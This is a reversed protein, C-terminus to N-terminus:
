ICSPLRVQESPGTQRFSIKCLASPVLRVQKVDERWTMLCTERWSATPPREERWGGRREKRSIKEARHQGGGVEM